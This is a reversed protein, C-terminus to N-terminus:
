KQVERPPDTDLRVVMIDRHPNSLGLNLDVAALSGNLVETISDHDPMGFRRRIENQTSEFDFNEEIFIADVNEPAVREFTDHLRSLSIVLPSSKLEVFSSM